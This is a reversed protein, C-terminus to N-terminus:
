GKQTTLYAALNPLKPGKYAPMAKDKPNKIYAAIDPTKMRKGVDNLDKSTGGDPYDKTKHCATCGEAQFAKKGQAADPKAPAPKPKPKAAPKAASAVLPLSLVTAALVGIAARHVRTMRSNEEMLVDSAASVAFLNILARLGAPPGTPGQESVV